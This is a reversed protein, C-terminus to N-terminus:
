KKDCKFKNINIKAGYFEQKKRYAAACLSTNFIEVKNVNSLSSDKTASEWKQIKFKSM